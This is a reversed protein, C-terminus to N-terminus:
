PPRLVQEKTVFKPAMALAADRQKLLTIVWPTVVNNCLFQVLKALSRVLDKLDQGVKQGRKKPVAVRGHGLWSWAKLINLPLSDFFVLGSASFAVSM